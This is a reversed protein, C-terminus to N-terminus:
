LEAGLVVETFLDGNKDARLADMLQVVQAASSDGSPQLTIRERQPDIAKVERLAAQLGSIDFEGGIHELRIESHDSEGVSARVDTRRLATTLLLSAEEVGLHLKEVPGPPLPALGEGAAPLRFGLAALKQPSTTLLLFPLLILLLSIISLLGPRPDSERSSHKVLRQRKLSRM